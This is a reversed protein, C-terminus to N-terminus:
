FESKFYKDIVDFLNIESVSMGEENENELWYSFNNEDQQESLIYQRGRAEIVLDIM